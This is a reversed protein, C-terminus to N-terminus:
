FILQTLKRLTHSRQLSQPCVWDFSRYFPDGKTCYGRGLIDRVTTKLFYHLRMRHVFEKMARMSLTSLFPLFRILWTRVRRWRVIMLTMEDRLIQSLSIQNLHWNGNIKKSFFHPMQKGALKRQQRHLRTPGIRTEFLLTGPTSVYLRSQKIVDKKGTSPYSICSEKEKGTSNSAGIVLSNLQFRSLIEPILLQQRESHKKSHIQSHPM